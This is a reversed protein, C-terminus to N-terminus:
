MQVHTHKSTFTAVMFHLQCHCKSRIIVEEVEPTFLDSIVSFWKAWATTKHPKDFVQASSDRTDPLIPAALDFGDRTRGIWNNEAVSSILNKKERYLKGQITFSLWPWFASEGWFGAYDAM